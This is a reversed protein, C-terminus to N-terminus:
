SGIADLQRQCAIKECKTAAKRGEGACGPRGESRAAGKPWRGKSVGDRVSPGASSADAVALNMLHTQGKGM